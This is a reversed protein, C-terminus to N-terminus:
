LDDDSADAAGDGGAEGGGDGGAAAGAISDLTLAVQAPLKGQHALVLMARYFEVTRADGGGGGGGSIAAPATALAANAQLDKLLDKTAELEETLRDFRRSANDDNGFGDGEPLPGDLDTVAASAKLSAIEAKLSEVEALAAETAENAEPDDDPPSQPGPGIGSAAKAEALEQELAAVQTANDEKIQDYLFLPVVDGGAKELQEELEAVRLKLESAESGEGKKVAALEKRVAALEASPTGPPVSSEALPDGDDSDFNLDDDDEEEPAFAALQANLTDVEALAADKASAEAVLGVQKAQLEAKTAELEKTLRTVEASDAQSAAAPAPGGGSTASARSTRLNGQSAVTPLAAQCTSHGGTIAYEMATRGERDKLNYKAGRTILAEVVQAQGMECAFMLASKGTVNVANVDARAVVLADATEAYGNNSALMLATHGSPDRADPDAGYAFLDRIVQTCGCGAADHMATLGGRDLTKSSVGNKLMSAVLEHGASDDLSAAVHLATKGAADFSGEIAPDTTVLIEVCDKGAKGQRCVEILAVLGHDNPSHLQM